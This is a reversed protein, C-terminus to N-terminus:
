MHAAARDARDQMEQLQARAEAAASSEPASGNNAAVDDAFGERASSTLRRWLTECLRDRIESPRYTGRLHAQVPVTGPGEAALMNRHAAMHTCHVAQRSACAPCLESAFQRYAVKPM